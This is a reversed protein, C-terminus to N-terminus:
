YDLDLLSAQPDSQCAVAVATTEKPATAAKTSKKPRSVKIKLAKGKPMEDVKAVVSPKASEPTKSARKRKKSETPMKSVAVNQSNETNKTKPKPIEGEFFEVWKANANELLRSKKRALHKRQEVDTFKYEVQAFGPPM